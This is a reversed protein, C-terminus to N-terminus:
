FISHCLFLVTVDNGNADKDEEFDKFIEGVEAYHFDCGYKACKRAIKNIHKELRPMNGEYIEFKMM